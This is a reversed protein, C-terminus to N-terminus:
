PLSRRMLLGQNSMWVLHCEAIELNFKEEDAIHHMASRQHTAACMTARASSCKITICMHVYINKERAINVCLSRMIIPHALLMHTHTHIINIYKEYKYLRTELHLNADCRKRLKCRRYLLTRM